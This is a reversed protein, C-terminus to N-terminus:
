SFYVCSKISYILCIFAMWQLRYQESPSKYLEENYGSITRFWDTRLMHKLTKKLQTMCATSSFSSYQHLVHLKIILKMNICEM